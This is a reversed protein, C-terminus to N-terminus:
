SDFLMALRNALLNFAAQLGPDDMHGDPSIAFLAAKHLRAPGVSLRRRVETQPVASKRVAKRVASRTM